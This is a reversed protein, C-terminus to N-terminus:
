RTRGTIALLAQTTRAVNLLYQWAKFPSTTEAPPDELLRVALRSLTRVAERDVGTLESTLAKLGRTLSEARRLTEALPPVDLRPQTAQQAELLLARRDVVSGGSYMTM